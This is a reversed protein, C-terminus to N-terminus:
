WAFTDWHSVDAENTKVSFIYCSLLLDMMVNEDFIASSAIKPSVPCPRLANFLLRFSAAIYFTSNKNLSDSRRMYYIYLFVNKTSSAVIIGCLIHSLAHRIKSLGTFCAFGLLLVM